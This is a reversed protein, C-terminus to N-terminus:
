FTYIWTELSAKKRANLLPMAYQCRKEWFSTFVSSKNNFFHVSSDPTLSQSPFNTIKKTINIMQFVATMVPVMKLM